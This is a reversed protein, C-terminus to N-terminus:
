RCVARAPDGPALDLYARCEPDAECGVFTCRDDHCVEFRREDCEADVSCATTCAGAACRARADGTVFACERDSTCDRAVCTGIECAELVQCDEDRTCGAVCEGDVCRATDSTCDGHERCTHCRDAVCYPTTFRPCEGDAMCNPGRDVCTSDTCERNCQCLSRFALCDAPDAVCAADYADCGPDPVFQACCDATAECEVRYCDRGTVTLNRGENLCVSRICGLGSVCDRRSACTEGLGGLPAPESGCALLILPLLLAGNHSSFRWHRVHSLGM